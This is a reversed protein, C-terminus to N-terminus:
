FKRMFKLLSQTLRTNPVAVLRNVATINLVLEL